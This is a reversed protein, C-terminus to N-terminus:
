NLFFYNAPIEETKGSSAPKEEQGKTLWDTILGYPQLFTSSLRVTARIDVCVVCVVCVRM